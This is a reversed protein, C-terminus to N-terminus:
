ATFDSQPVFVICLAVVASDFCSKMAQCGIIGHIVQGSVLAIIYMRITSNTMTHPRSHPTPYNPLLLLRHSFGMNPKHGGSLPYGVTNAMILPNADNNQDCVQAEVHSM